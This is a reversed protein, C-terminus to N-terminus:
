PLYMRCRIAAMLYAFAYFAQPSFHTHTYDAGIVGICCM